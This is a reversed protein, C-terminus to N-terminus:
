WIFRPLKAKRMAKRSARMVNVPYDRLAGDRRKTGSKEHEDRYTEAAALQADAIRRVVKELLRLGGSRKKRKTEKEAVRTAVRRGREDNSIVVVQKVETEALETIM